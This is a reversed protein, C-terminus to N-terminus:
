KKNNAAARAEVIERRLALSRREAVVVAAAEIEGAKTHSSALASLQADYSDAIGAVAAFARNEIEAHRVRFEESLMDVEISGTPIPAATLTRDLEFRISEAGAARLGMYDGESQRERALRDLAALYDEQWKSLAATKEEAAARLAQDFKSKAEALAKGQAAPIIGTVPAGPNAADFIAVASEAAALAADGRVSKLAENFFEAQAMEGSKTLKKVANELDDIYARSVALQKRFVAARRAERLARHTDMTHAFASAAAADKQPLKKDAAFRMIEANVISWGDYNGEQRNRERLEDLAAAYSARWEEEVNALESQFLAIQTNFGRRLEELSEPAGDAAHAAHAAHATPAPEGGPEAAGASRALSAAIDPVGWLAAYRAYAAEAGLGRAIVAAPRAALRAGRFDLRMVPPAAAIYIVAACLLAFAANFARRRTKHRRLHAFLAATEGSIGGSSDRMSVLLREGFEWDNRLFADRVRAEDRARIKAPVKALEDEYADPSASLERFEAIFRKAREYNESAIENKVIIRLHERRSQNGRASAALAHTEELIARGAPGVPEFALPQAAASVAWEFQRSEFAAKIARLRNSAAEYERGNAGCVPCFLTGVQQDEGCERCQERGDWGCEGCFRASLPNVTDCWKCRWTTKLTPKETHMETQLTALAVDFSLASQYREGPDTALAKSVVPRLPAPLDIDRYYRPNKGSAVFFLLAGLGYVDAREDSAKADNEQEPAGYGISVFKDGRSTLKTDCDPRSLRALGFDVIKPEGESDMLINSSKLDRHIVKAAHAASIARAIKLIFATADDPSMPGNANIYQELTQPPAPDSQDSKPLASEVYEMIIYPGDGDEGISYIHVIHVNNLAAAAKAEHLFRKRVAADFLLERRLRKIAVFRGLKKDAALWVVGMGGAGIKRRIDYGELLGGSDSGNADARAGFLSGAGNAASDAEPAVPQKAQEPILRTQTDNEQSM